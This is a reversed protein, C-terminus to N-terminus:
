ATKLAFFPISGNSSWLAYLESQRNKVLLVAVISSVCVVFLVRTSLLDSLVFSNRLLEPFPWISVAGQLMQIDGNSLQM